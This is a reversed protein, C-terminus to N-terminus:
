DGNGKMSHREEAAALEADIYAKLEVAAARLFEIGEDDHRLISAIAPRAHKLKQGLNM